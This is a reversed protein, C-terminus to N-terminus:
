AAKICLQKIAPLLRDAIGLLVKVSPLGKAGTVLEYIMAPTLYEFGKKAYHRNAKALEAEELPTLSLVGGLGYSNARALGEELDHGIGKGKFDTQKDGKALCYAKFGLELARCALYPRVPGYDDEVGPLDQAARLFDAGYKQFMYPSMKITAPEPTLTINRPNELEAM